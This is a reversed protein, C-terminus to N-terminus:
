LLKREPPPPPATDPRPSPLQLRATHLVSASPAFFFFFLNLLLPRCSGGPGATPRSRKELSCPPISPVTNLSTPISPLPPLDRQERGKGGRGEHTPRGACEKIHHQALKPASLSHFFNTTDFFIYSFRLFSLLDKLRCPLPSKFYSNHSDSLSMMPCCFRCCTCIVHAM